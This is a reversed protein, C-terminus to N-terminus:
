KLAGKKRDSEMKDKWVVSKKKIEEAEDREDILIHLRRLALLFQIALKIDDLRRTSLEYRDRYGDASQGLLKKILRIYFVTTDYEPSSPEFYVSVATKMDILNKAVVAFRGQLEVFAWKWKTNDGYADMILRIALGLKRVLFYRKELSLDKIQSLQEEYDTYACNVQNTVVEEFYIIAKYLAKRGENLAETNKVSVIEVSLNNMTLYLTAIYIMEEALQLKKYAMGDANKEIQSLIEKEKELSSQVLDKYPQIKAGYLNRSEVAIKAM